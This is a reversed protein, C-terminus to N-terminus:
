VPHNNWKVLIVDASATALYPKLIIIVDGASLLTGDPSFALASVVGRNGTLVAIEKLTQGDWETSISKKTRFM